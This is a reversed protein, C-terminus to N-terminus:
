SKSITPYNITVDNIRENLKKIRNDESPHTSRFEPPTQNM